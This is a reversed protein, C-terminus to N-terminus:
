QQILDQLQDRNEHIQISTIQEGQVMMCILTIIDLHINISGLDDSLAEMNEVMNEKAKSSLCFLVHQQDEVHKRCLQCLGDSNNYM